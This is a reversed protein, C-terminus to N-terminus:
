CSRYSTGRLPVLRVQHGTVAVFGPCLQSFLEVLQEAVCGGGFREAISRAAVRQFLIERPQLLGDARCQVQRKYVDADHRQFRCCLFDHRHQLAKGTVDRPYAGGGRRLAHRGGRLESFVAAGPDGATGCSDDAGRRYARCLHTYSVAIIDAISDALHKIVGVPTDELNVGCHPM